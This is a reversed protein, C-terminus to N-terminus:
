DARRNKIPELNNPSNKERPKKELQLFQLSTDIDSKRFKIEFIIGILTFSFSVILIVIAIVQAFANNWSILTNIKELSLVLLVLSFFFLNLAFVIKLFKNAIILAYIGTVFLLIVAIIIYPFITTWDM